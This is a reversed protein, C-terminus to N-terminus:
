PNLEFVIRVRQDARARDMYAVAGPRGAVLELVQEASGVEEPPMTRGSFVLRAWYANIEALDKGVLRKYFSAREPSGAPMDLPEAPAGTPLQRYRGLFINIVDDRSLQEVKSRPNVVVVLDVAGAAPSLALILLAALFRRLPTM